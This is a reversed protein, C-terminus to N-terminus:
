DDVERWRRHDRAMMEVAALPGTSGQDYKEPRTGSGEWAAIIPDIWEWAAEVEDGRMFLTQDGRVVDMLLREYADPMRWDETFGEAFSMDLPTKRVRMGGPGPDKTMIRLRLGEDPQLRITLVNPLIPTALEGFVSHAPEKFQIAIETYRRRLKKGTRLYFPVGTWRWNDIEAKIALYCETTSDPNGAEEVYSPSEGEARYQGRVTNKLADHGLLPRLSRLVKLKEDRVADAEFRYPPEMAILCLLQLLHNQVMDRIAGANDYYSGRSGVGVTEAATIQVHDIHAANWIPEFLANAFRMAMLNQVTEKGLYHDIRYVCSEDFVAAIDQNLQRASALDHGLPKEVVLRGNCHALGNKELGRAITGFLAPGVALYFVRIKDRRQDLLAVLEQWGEPDTVDNCRYQLMQLFQPLIDEDLETEPIFRRLAEEAQARFGDNDLESRSLGIIRSSEPAQGAAVRRYLAPLLKRMSLDGTGGFIVLDFPEVPIIKSTM